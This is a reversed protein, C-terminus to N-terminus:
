RPRFETRKTKARSLAVTDWIRTMSCPGLVLRLTGRCSQEQQEDAQFVRKGARREMYRFLGRM